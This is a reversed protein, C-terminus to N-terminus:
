QRLLKLNAEQLSASPEIGLEDLLRLRTETYLELARSTQGSASLTLMYKEVVLEDFPEENLYAGLLGSLDRRDEMLLSIDAVKILCRRREARLDQRVGVAWQSHMGHLPDGTWEALAGELRRLVQATDEEALAANTAARFRHIDVAQPDVMLVYGERLRRLAITQNAAKGVDLRQRLRTIYSSLVNRVRTPPEKEWTREILTDPNVAINPTMLLAGLVTRQRWHGLDFNQGLFTARLNGFMHFQM